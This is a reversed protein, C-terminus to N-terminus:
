LTRGRWRILTSAAPALAATFVAVSAAVLAAVPAAVVAEVAGAAVAVVGLVILVASAAPLVLVPRISPRMLLRQSLATAQTEAATEVSKWLRRHERHEQHEM